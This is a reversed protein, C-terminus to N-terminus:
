VWSEGNWIPARTSETHPVHTARTATIAGFDVRTSHSQQNSWRKIQQAVSWMTVLATMKFATRGIHRTVQKAFEKDM